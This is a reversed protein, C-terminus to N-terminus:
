WLDLVMLGLMNNKIGEYFWIAVWLQLCDLDL